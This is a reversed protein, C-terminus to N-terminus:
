KTVMLRKVQKAGNSEIAVLYVGQELSESNLTYEISGNVNNWTRSAVEAGRVDTVSLVVDAPQGVVEFRVTANSSTPNPYVELGLDGGLSISRGQRIGNSINLTYDEVEGYTFVECSTPTANYKMSVRMRTTGNTSGAPVTLTGSVSANTIPNSTAGIREGADTFDGDQNTDIWIAYGERYTRGSWAPNITVVYGTGASVNTSISTFDGYGGNNGSNNDIGAYRFRQIWEDATSNGRSACYTVPGPGPGGGGTTPNFSERGGGSEFTARMRDVQGQSFMYMCRDDVYDMYNMWMDPDGGSCSNAGFSPCGYNPNGALPTDSVFDDGGCGTDGWIHRLNLWHGVEHTTTRGLNFPATATGITGFYAFDTVVGDTAASGSNPFQAYGLIGGSIDCVWINLYDDTPWADKGGSSNFKVQNGTTSFSTRTTSTRTIGSTPNGNPDTTALAFQINADGVRSSFLSPVSGIDGNTASFDENLVDIQSNIQATSINETSNNYVVHVVVPITVTTSASLGNALQGKKKADLINQIRHEHAEMKHHLEPDQELLHNLHEMSSCNRQAYAAPWIMLVSVALVLLKKMM